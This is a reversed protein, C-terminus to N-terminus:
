VEVEVPVDRWEGPSGSPSSRLFVDVQTTHWWQQLVRQTAFAPAIEGRTNVTKYFPDLQVRREIFRIHNTPTM